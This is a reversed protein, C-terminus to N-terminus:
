LAHQKIISQIASKQSAKALELATLGDSTKTRLSANKAVLYNAVGAHEFRMAHHIPQWQKGTVANIDAGQSLLYQVMTLNGRSAAIHLVTEGNFNRYNVDTGGAILKKLKPLDGNKAAPFIADKAGRTLTHSAPKRWAPIPVVASPKNKVHPTTIKAAPKTNASNCSILCLSVISCM